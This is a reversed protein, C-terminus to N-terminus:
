NFPETLKQQKSTSGAPKERFNNEVKSTDAPKEAPKEAAPKAAPKKQTKPGAIRKAQSKGAPKVKGDKIYQKKIEPNNKQSAAKDSEPGKLSITLHYNIYKEEPAVGHLDIINGPLASMEHQVPPCINGQDDIWTFHYWVTVQPDGCFVWRFYGTRSLLASADVTLLGEDNIMTKASLLEINFSSRGILTIREDAARQKILEETMCGSMLLVAACAGIVVKVIKM